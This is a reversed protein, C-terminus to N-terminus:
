IKGQGSDGGEFDRLLEQAEKLQEESVKIIVPGVPAYQYNENEVIYDIGNDDLISRLFAVDGRNFTWFIQRYKTPEVGMIVELM